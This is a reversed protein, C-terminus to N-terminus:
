AIQRYPGLLPGDMEGGLQLSLAAFGAVTGSLRELARPFARASEEVIMRNFGGTDYAIRLLRRIRPYRLWFPDDPCGLLHSEPREDDPQECECLVCMM